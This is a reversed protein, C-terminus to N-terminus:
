NEANLMGDLIRFIRSTRQSVKLSHTVVLITAKSEEHLTEFLKLIEEETRSDLNGTPEDALIVKPNNVFARAISVRQREGGSLQYPKHKLRHEMRVKSLWKIATEEQEKQEINQYYMPLIVNDLVSLNNILNFSQFVFGVIRGRIGSLEKDELLSVESGELFYKGKTCSDLCGIINMLTSKGSGSPGMISVYEAKKIELSINNLIPIESGDIFYSKSVGSLAIIPESM